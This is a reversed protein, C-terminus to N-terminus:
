RQAHYQKSHNLFVMQESTGDRRIQQEDLRVQQSCCGDGPAEKEEQLGAPPTCMCTLSLHSHLLQFM